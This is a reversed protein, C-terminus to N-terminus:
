RLVNVIRITIWQNWLHKLNRMECQSRTSANDIHNLQLFNVLHTLSIFFIFFSRSISLWVFIHLVDFTRITKALMCRHLSQLNSRISKEHLESFEASFDFRNTYRFSSHRKCSNTKRSRIRAKRSRSTTITSIYYNCLVNKRLSIIQCWVKSSKVKLRVRSQM